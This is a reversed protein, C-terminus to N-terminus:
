AFIHVARFNRRKCYKFTPGRVKPRRGYVLMLQLLYHKIPGAPWRFIVWFASCPYGKANAELEPRPHPALQPFSDSKPSVDFNM